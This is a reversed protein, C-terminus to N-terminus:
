KGEWLDCTQCQLVNGLEYPPDGDNRKPHSCTAEGQWNLGYEDECKGHRCNGCCQDAIRLHFTRDFDKSM